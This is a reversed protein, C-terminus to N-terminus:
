LTCFTTSEYDFMTVCRKCTQRVELSRAWTGTRETVFVRFPENDQSGVTVIDDSSKVSSLFVFNEEMQLEMVIDSNKIETHCYRFYM